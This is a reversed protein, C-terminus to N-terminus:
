IGGDKSFLFLFVISMRREPFSAQRESSKPCIWCIRVNVTGLVGLLIYIWFMVYRALFTKLSEDLDPVYRALYEAVYISFESKSGSDANDEQVVGLSDENSDQPERVNTNDDEANDCAVAPDKGSAVDRLEDGVENDIKEVNQHLPGVTKRLAAEGVEPTFPAVSMSSKGDSKPIDTKALKVEVASQSKASHRAPVLPTDCWKGSFQEGSGGCELYFPTVIPISEVPNLTSKDLNLGPENCYDRGLEPFLTCDQDDYLEHMSIQLDCQFVEAITTTNAPPPPVTPEFNDEPLDHCLPWPEGEAPRHVKFKSMIPMDPLPMRRRLGPVKKLEGIRKFKAIFREIESLKDTLTEHKPRDDIFKISWDIVNSIRDHKRKGKHSQHAKKNGSKESAHEHNEESPQHITPLINTPPASSDTIMKEAYTPYSCPMARVTKNHGVVNEGCSKTPSIKQETVSQLASDDNRSTTSFKTFNELEISHGNRHLRKEFVLFMQKCINFYKSHLGMISIPQSYDNEMSCRLCVMYKMQSLGGPILKDTLCLSVVNISVRVSTSSEATAEIGYTRCQMAYKALIPANGQVKLTIPAVRVSCSILAPWSNVFIFHSDLIEGYREGSNPVKHVSQM